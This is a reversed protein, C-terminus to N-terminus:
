PRDKWWRVDPKGTVTLWCACTTCWWPLVTRPALETAQNGCGQCKITRPEDEAKKTGEPLGTM